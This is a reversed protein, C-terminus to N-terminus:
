ANRTMYSVAGPKRAGHFVRIATVVGAVLLLIGLIDPLTPSRGHLALGFITGFVTESVILQASLAVPLRQAAFKWALAGGISPLIVLATSWIYLPAAVDWGLGLQPIHFVGLALGAPMFALMEAGGGVLILATWVRADMGPRDAQARQNALSFSTWLSVAAIALLIGVALWRTSTLRTPDFIGANVFALGIAVLALPLILASWSVAKQRM